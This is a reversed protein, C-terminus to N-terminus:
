LENSMVFEYKIAHTKLSSDFLYFDYFFLHSGVILYDTNTSKLPDRM